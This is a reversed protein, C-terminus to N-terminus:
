YVPRVFSVDLYTNGSINFTKLSTLPFPQDTNPRFHLVRVTIKDAPVLHVSVVVPGLSYAVNHPLPGFSAGARQGNIDVLLGVYPNTSWLKNNLDYASGPNVDTNERFTVGTQISYIGEVPVSFETSDASFVINEAPDNGSRDMAAPFWKLKTSLQNGVSRAKFDPAVLEQGSNTMMRPEPGYIYQWTGTGDNDSMLVKGGGENGDVLRFGKGKVTATDKQVIDLTVKPTDTNIGVQAYLLQGGSMLATLGVTLISKKMKTM